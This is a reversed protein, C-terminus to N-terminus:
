PSPGTGSFAPSTAPKMPTTTTLETGAVRVSGADPVDIGCILNLLTAKGSGSPGLIAVREGPEVKANVVDLM